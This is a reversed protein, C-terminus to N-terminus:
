EKVDALVDTETDYIYFHIDDFRTDCCGICYSRCGDIYSYVHKHYHGYVWKKPKCELANWLRTLPQEGVDNLPFMNSAHGADVIYAYATDVFYPHGMVNFGVGGPCGHTVMIDLPEGMKNLREAFVDVEENQPYNSIIRQVFGDDREVLFTEQPRDVNFAGGMCGIKKGDVEFVTGRPHYFLNGEALKKKNSETLYRHDEHNGDIFHLPIQDFGYEKRLLQLRKIAGPYFGFDGVQFAMDFNLYDHSRAHDLAMFMSAWNGHVDGLFLIKM